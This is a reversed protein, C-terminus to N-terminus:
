KPLPVVMVQHASAPLGFPFIMGQTPVGVRGFDDKWERLGGGVAWSPTTLTLAVLDDLARGYRQARQGCDYCTAFDRAYEPKRPRACFRCSNHELLRWIRGREALRQVVGDREESV